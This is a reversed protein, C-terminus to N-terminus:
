IRLRVISCSEPRPCPTHPIQINLADLGRSDHLNITSIPCYALVHPAQTFIHVPFWCSHNWTASSICRLISPSPFHPTRMHMLGLMSTQDAARVPVNRAMRQSGKDPIDASLPPCFRPREAAFILVLINYSTEDRRYGAGRDCPNM